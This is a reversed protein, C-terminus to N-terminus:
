CCRSFWILRRNVVKSFLPPKWGHYLLIYSSWRHVEMCLRKYIIQLTILSLFFYWLFSNSHNFINQCLCFVVNLWDSHPSFWIGHSDEWPPLDKVAPITERIRAPWSSATKQLKRKTTTFKVPEYQEVAERESGWAEASDERMKVGCRIVYDKFELTSKAPCTVATPLTVVLVSLSIKGLNM